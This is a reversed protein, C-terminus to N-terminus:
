YEHTVHYITHSIETHISFLVGVYFGTCDQINELTADSTGFVNPEIDFASNWPVISSCSLSTERIGYSLKKNEIMGMGSLLRAPIDVDIKGQGYNTSPALPGWPLCAERRNAIGRPRIISTHGAVQEVLLDDCIM